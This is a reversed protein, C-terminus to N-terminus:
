EGGGRLPTAEETTGGLAKAKAKVAAARARTDREKRHLKNWDQILDDSYSQECVRRKPPASSVPLRFEAKEPQQAMGLLSINSQFLRPFATVCVRSEM